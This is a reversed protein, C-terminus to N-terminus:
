QEQPQDSFVNAPPVQCQGSPAQQRARTRLPDRTRRWLYVQAVAGEVAFVAWYVAAMALLGWGTGQESVLIRLADVGALM